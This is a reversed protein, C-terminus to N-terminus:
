ERVGKNLADACAVAFAEAYSPHAHMIDNCVEHITIEMRMLAAPEAILEAAEEGYIHVGYIEGHKKGALVKVFGDTKGTLIARVNDSLSSYGVIVDDGYKAVAEDEGLGVSSAGPETFVTVPTARLDIIKQKGMANAAATEGMRYAAHTQMCFGTCDGAAYIGAIGTELYENVIIADGVTNISNEFSGFASTDLKKKSSIIMKDCLVGGKETIVFPYGDRNSIESVSVGTYVKVGAKILSGKVAEALQADMGPLLQKSPEVLMVSSGAGAFAAAIECGTRGGGFVMLRSPAEVAKMADSLTWIGPHDAGPVDPRASVTGSCLIIKSVSYSKGRCVIEHATNIKAEGAEVRVRYSRLLRAVNATLHTAISNKHSLIKGLNLISGGGAAIGGLMEREFLITKAGLKVAQVAASYGAPGGGIVAVDYEYKNKFLNPRSVNDIEEDPLLDTETPPGTEAFSFPTPEEDTRDAYSIGQAFRFFGDQRDPGEAETIFENSM